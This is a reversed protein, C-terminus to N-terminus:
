RFLKRKMWLYIVIILTLPTLRINFTIFDLIISLSFVIMLFNWGWKKMQWVGFIAIFAVVSIGLLIYTGINFIEGQILSVVSFSFIIISGLFGLISIITVGLPREVIENM